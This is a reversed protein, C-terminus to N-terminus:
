FFPYSPPANSPTAPAKADSFCCTNHVTLAVCWGGKRVHSRVASILNRSLSVPETLPQPPARPRLAGLMGSPEGGCRARGSGSQPLVSASAVAGAGAGPAPELRRMRRTCTAGRALHHMGKWPTKPNKVVQHQRSQAQAQASYRGRSRVAMRAVITSVFAAISNM